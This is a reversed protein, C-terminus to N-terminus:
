FRHRRGIMIEFGSRRHRHFYPGFNNDYGYREFRRHRFWGRREFRRDRDFHDDYGRNSWGNNYFNGYGSNPSPYQYSNDSRDENHYHREQAFAAASILMGAFFLTFIKKM